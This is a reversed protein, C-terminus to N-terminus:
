SIYSRKTFFCLNSINFKVGNTCIYDVHSMSIIVFVTMSYLKYINRWRKCSHENHMSLIGKNFNEKWSKQYIGFHSHKLHENLPEYEQSHGPITNCM